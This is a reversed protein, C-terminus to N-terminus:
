MPTDVCFVLYRTFFGLLSACCRHLCYYLLGLMFFSLLNLKYCNVQSVILNLSHIHCVLILGISDSCFIQWNLQLKWKSKPIFHVIPVLMTTYYTTTPEVIWYMLQRVHLLCIETMVLLFGFVCIKFRMVPFKAHFFDVLMTLFLLTSRLLSM